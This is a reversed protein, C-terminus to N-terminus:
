GNRSGTCMTLTIYSAPLTVRVVREKVSDWLCNAVISNIYRWVSAKRKWEAGPFWEPIVKMIPFIDVLFSGPHGTAAIGAVADEARGVYSENEQVNMGYIAKLISDAFASDL